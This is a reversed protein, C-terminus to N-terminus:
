GCRLFAGSGWGPAINVKEMIKIKLCKFVLDKNEILFFNNLKLNPELADFLESAADGGRSM